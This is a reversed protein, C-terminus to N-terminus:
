NNHLNPFKKYNMVVFITQTRFRGTHPWIHIHHPHPTSTTHIHHPHPTSTTHIHHPHPTSTTHIHHPHPTSTTHIHHPHPTSTTHIHIHHPHPTSTTHIHHPHPHRRTHDSFDSCKTIYCEFQVTVLKYYSLYTSPMLQFLASTKNFYEQKIEHSAKLIRFIINSTFHLLYLYFPYLTNRISAEKSQWCYM